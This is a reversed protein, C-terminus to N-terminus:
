WRGGYGPTNCGCGGRMKMNNKGGRYIANKPSSPAFIVYLLLAVACILAVFAIVRCYKQLYFTTQEPQVEEKPQTQKESM